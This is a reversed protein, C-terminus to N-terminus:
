KVDSNVLCVYDGTSQEMGMNNAKAFGLNESNRILKFSPFMEEVLDATGDSSANDVVIVETCINAGHQRLSDLCELVYKKANWVVIIVSVTIQGPNSSSRKPTLTIEPTMRLM